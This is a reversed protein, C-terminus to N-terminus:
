GHKRRTCFQLQPVSTNRGSRTGKWEGGGLGRSGVKLFLTLGVQVSISSSSHATATVVRGIAEEVVARQTSWCTLAPFWIVVKDNVKFYCSGASKTKIKFQSLSSSPLRSVPMSNQAATFFLHLLLQDGVTWNGNLTSSAYTIAQFKSWHSDTPPKLSIFSDM